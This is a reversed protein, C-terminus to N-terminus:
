IKNTQLLINYSLDKYCFRTIICASKHELGM